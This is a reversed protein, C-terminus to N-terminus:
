VSRRDRNIMGMRTIRQADGDDLDIFEIGCLKKFLGARRTWVVKCKLSVESGLGRLTTEFIGKPVRSCRLRMGTSSLDVVQGRDCIVAEQSLRGRRRRGTTPEALNTM